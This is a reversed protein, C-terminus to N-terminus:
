ANRRHINRPELERSVSRTETRREGKRSRARHIMYHYLRPRLVGQKETSESKRQSVRKSPKSRDPPPKPGRSRPFQRKRRFTCGTCCPQSRSISIFRTRVNSRPSIKDNPSEFMFINPSEHRTSREPNFNNAEPVVGICKQGQKVYRTHRDVQRCRDDVSSRLSYMEHTEEKYIPLSMQRPSIVETHIYCVTDETRTRSDPWTSRRIPRHFAGSWRGGSSLVLSLQHSNSARRLSPRTCNSKEPRALTSTNKQKRRLHVLYRAHATPYYCTKTNSGNNFNNSNGCTVTRWLQNTRSLRPPPYVSPDFQKQKSSIYSTISVFTHRPECCEGKAGDSRRRVSSPPRFRSAFCCTNIPSLPSFAM